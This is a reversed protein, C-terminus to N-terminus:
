CEKCWHNLTALRWVLNAYKNNGKKFDRILKNAKGTDIFDLDLDKDLLFSLCGRLWKVEGPTVFGKKDTRNYIADPIVGKMSERLVFKTRVGNIKDSNRLSFAFEVLRHDLFPVRSEISFAMSNRDEYHLLAPLSTTFLLNYLFDSLKSGMGTRLQFNPKKGTELTLFPYYNKYELAYLQQEDIVATLLSKAVIDGSKLVSHGQESRLKSMGNFLRSGDLSRIYDAFLRYFSHMYGALYEDSGQGDLVVKIGHSGILKMLFYQSIYSSGALPVDNFQVIRSLESRIEEPQPQYYHPKISPFKGAVEYIFKREDVDGKGDYYVSFSNYPTEPFLEQVMSVIASSDIGGSLCSGVPVDSRMHLRISDAFMDRFQQKTHDATLNSSQTNQIDWYRTVSLVGAKYVLSHAAPLEHLHKYFTENHYSIWGLQLFRAIQSKNLEKSFGPTERLVKYESGFYFKDYQHMYYFPKIGFRDRSCFLKKEKEDWIAFSWMGVFREVCSEGWCKYSALIVETDSHTDFAFGLQELERRLEIYNYVEGNYTIMLGAYEMPQNAANSLDIITLRNHGLAVAASIWFDSNDPGRHSISVLMKRILSTAEERNLEPDVFGAIGCM